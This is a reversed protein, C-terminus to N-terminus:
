KDKFIIKSNANNTSEYINFWANSILAKLNAEINTHKIERIKNVLKLNGPEIVYKFRHNLM